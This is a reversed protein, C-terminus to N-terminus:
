GNRQRLAEYLLLAGSVSANLSDVASDAMPIRIRIGSALWADDLGQDEAGIALATPTTMNSQTYPAADHPTSVLLNINHQKLFALTQDRTAGVIPLSFVAGTSARIANPNFPDTVGDAVILAHAGAASATRALAGLNGPKEIGVAILLLAPPTSPLTLNELTRAPTHFVAIIGEPRDHYAIKGLISESVDYVQARDQLAQTAGLASLAISLQSKLLTQCAYFEVPVLGAAIARSVERAGEALFHGTADREKRDRLRVASKVRPNDASTIKLPPRM